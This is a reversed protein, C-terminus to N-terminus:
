LGSFLTHANKLWHFVKIFWQHWFCGSFCCVSRGELVPTQCRHEISDAPPPLHHTVFSQEAVTFRSRAVDCVGSNTLSSLRAHLRGLERHLPQVDCSYLSMICVHSELAVHTGLLLSPWVYIPPWKRLDNRCLRKGGLTKEMEGRTTHSYFPCFWLHGPMAPQSVLLM